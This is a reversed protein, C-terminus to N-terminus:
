ARFVKRGDLIAHGLVFVGRVAKGGLSRFSKGLKM